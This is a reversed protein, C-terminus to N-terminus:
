GHRNTGRTDPLGRVAPLLAACADEHMEASPYYVNHTMQPLDVFQDGLAGHELADVPKGTFRSILRQGMGRASLCEVYGDCRAAVARVSEGDVLHPFDAMLGEIFPSDHKGDRIAKADARVADMDIKYDPARRAYYFFIVPVTIRAILDLSQRVWAARTEAVYDLIREPEEIVIRKWSAWGPLSEGTTRDVVFEVFGEPEYRSNGAHRAATCQLIVFRGRSVAEILRDYQGYFGPGTGGVALNLASMGLEEALLAPYPRPYFAGYTQVAGLCSFFSGPAARFPNLPPGRFPVDCGDVYFREYDVLEYDRPQYDPYWRQM